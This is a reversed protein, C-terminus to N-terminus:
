IALSLNAADQDDKLQALLLELVQKDMAIKSILDRVRTSDMASAVGSQSDVSKRLADVEVELAQEHSKVYAAMGEIEEKAVCLEKLRQSAMQSEKHAASADLELQVLEMQLENIDKNASAGVDRVNVSPRIYLSSAIQNEKLFEEKINLPLGVPLPRGRRRSTLIHMFYIFQSKNISQQYKIDVLQWIQLFDETQLRSQHFIPDLQPLTIECDDDGNSCKSFQTEYSFRDAPSIYWDFNSTDSM